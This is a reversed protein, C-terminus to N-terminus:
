DLAAVLDSNLRIIRNPVHGPPRFMQVFRDPRDARELGQEKARPARLAGRLPVSVSLAHPRGDRKPM